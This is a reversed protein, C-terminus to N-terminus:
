GALLMDAARRAAPISALFAAFGISAIIVPATALANHGRKRATGILWGCVLGVVLGGLHGGLSVDPLFSLAVNMVLLPGVGTTMVKRKAMLQLVATAGLLAFVAGSAGGAQVEPEILLAGLSGGLLGAVFLTGFTLAGFNGEIMRGTAWLLLMNFGIHSESFHVFGSSLVRYWEDDLWMSPGYLTLEGLGGTTEDGLILTGSRWTDSFFVIVCAAILLSTVIPLNLRQSPRGARTRSDGTSPASVAAVTTLGSRPSAADPPGLVFLVDRTYVDRATPMIYVNQFPAWSHCLVPRSKVHAPGLRESDNYRVGTLDDKLM